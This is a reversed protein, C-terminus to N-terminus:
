DNTFATFHAAFGTTMATTGRQLTAAELTRRWRYRNQARAGNPCCHEVSCRRRWGDKHLRTALVHRLVSGTGQCEWSSQQLPGQMTSTHSAGLLMELFWLRRYVTCCLSWANTPEGLSKPITVHEDYCGDWAGCTCQMWSGSCQHTRTEASYVNLPM